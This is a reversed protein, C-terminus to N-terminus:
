NFERQSVFPRRDSPRMVAGLLREWHENQAEANRHGFLLAFRFHQFNHLNWGCRCVVAYYLSSVTEHGM